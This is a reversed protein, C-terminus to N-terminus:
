ANHQVTDVEDVQGSEITRNYYIQMIEKIVM